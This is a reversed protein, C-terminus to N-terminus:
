SERAPVFSMPLRPLGRDIRDGLLWTPTFREIRKWAIWAQGGRGKTAPQKKKRKALPGEEKGRREVAAVSGAMWVVNFRM